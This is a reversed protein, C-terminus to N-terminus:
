QRRSEEFAKVAEPAAELNSAREWTKEWEPYGKWLVLYEVVSRKGVKRTRKDVVREVEWADEGDIQDVAMPRAHDQQRDPFESSGSVYKKLKSVHFVPHIKMTAPLALEYAVDSIVRSIVFPGIYKPCLKPARNENRVNATSLLVSDGEAFRVERRKENAYHSQRQQAAQINRKAKTLAQNMVGVLENATPNSSVNESKIAGAIPLHPHQGSNLFYPSFGTSAQVSNNYAIEAMVLHQDWDDQEYNTYSRLMDELTRNMRETQGDSEPHYSSSMALKTGMQEWLSRWFNSTFRADRDSVISRPVGHHRVIEAYVLKALQPANVTTQTPIFHAMKSLKDVVVVIADHGNKTKPLATILDMSVQEWKADPIPLPQLLGMPAQNSPKSQQCPLCSTVYKRIEDHMRPWYFQRKVLETTKTVGVHGGTPADHIERLIRTKLQKNNPIYVRDQNNCYILGERIAYPVRCQKLISQCDADEDCAQKIDAELSSVRLHSVANVAQRAAAESDDLEYDSRRSLADAVVNEKGAKYEIDLDFEALFESWRKQRNSLQPQTQLYILSKHDTRVKVKTGYVHHRWKKLALIIALQEQEHTPYRTEAPQLKKSLFAVPQWGRGHDQNLSAGVAVGSADTMVMFPLKPDPLVLVPASTLATKLNEFAQQQAEAWKFETDKKLLETLPACVGSYNRVFEQYYGALGLFSRLEPVNKPVPWDRIAQVKDEEMGKGDASLTHGLFSIKSRFFECKSLKGYLQNRRLVDLVQRIHERHEDLTKSYILIDDLFVIM